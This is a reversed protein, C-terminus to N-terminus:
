ESRYFAAGASAGLVPEVRDYRNSPEGTGRKYPMGSRSYFDGASDLVTPDFFDVMRSAFFWHDPYTSFAHLGAAIWEPDVETDNNLLAVYRTKVLQIGRNVARAFGQNEELALIDAEPFAGQVMEISGDTSGNDVVLIRCPETQISLSKLCGHLLDKRNWTPIVVTIESEM